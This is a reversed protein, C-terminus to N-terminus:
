SFTADSVPTCEGTAAEAPKPGRPRRSRPTLTSRHTPRPQSGDPSPIEWLFVESSGNDLRADTIMYRGNASVERLKHGNATGGMEIVRVWDGQEMAISTTALIINNTPGPPTTQRQGPIAIDLSRQLPATQCGRSWQLELPEVELARLIGLDNCQAICLVTGNAARTLVLPGRHEFVRTEIRENRKWSRIAVVQAESEAPTRRADRLTFLDESNSSFFLGRCLEYHPLIVKKEFTWGDIQAPNTTTFIHIFGFFDAFAFHRRFSSFSWFKPAFLATFGKRLHRTKQSSLEAFIVGEQEGFFAISDSKYIFEAQYIDSPLKLSRFKEGWAIDYFTYENPATAIALQQSDRSIAASDPKVAPLRRLVTAQSTKPSRKENLDLGQLHIAADLIHSSDESVQSDLRDRNM